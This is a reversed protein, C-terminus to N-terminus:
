ITPIDHLSFEIAVTEIGGDQAQGTEENISTVLVRGSEAWAKIKVKFYDTSLPASDGHLVRILTVEQNIPNELRASYQGDAWEDRHWTIPNNLTDEHVLVTPADTGQQRLLTCKYVRGTPEPLGDVEVNEFTANGYKVKLTAQM